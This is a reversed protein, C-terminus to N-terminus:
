DVLVVQTPRIQRFLDTSPSAAKFCTSIGTVFVHKGVPDVGQGVPVSGLVKVGIHTSNDQMASGDDIYFYGTTSYTVVGFTKVLLGINNLESSYWESTNKVGKQGVGTVADYQFDGGGLTRNAMFIPDVSGTGDQGVYTAIICRELGGTTQPKGVILARAGVAMGHSTKSVIIGSSRDEAEAYFASTFLYTVIGKTFVTTTNSAAKANGFGTEALCGNAASFESTNGSPDTATAAIFDGPTTLPLNATFSANGSGNTTVSQSGLYTQGEGYGSPDKAPSSFFEITYATDNAGNLMGAVATQGGYIYAATLVPYNQLNNPGSVTGTHNATVGYSDETGGLLDIGLRANSHISNGSIKNGTTATSWVAVGSTGNGSIINGAGIETGGVINNAAGGGIGVGYDLNPIAASGDAATGIHNGQVTNGTTGADSIEVGSATNGSIINAAGATTGGITNGSAGGYIFVGGANAVAATGTANTGIYNGQVLNTTSSLLCVGNGTNGSIINAAGATTGGITNAAGNCIIVGELVNPIAAAGTANTGIYNGQVLNNSADNLEMGRGGNGSIINRAAAVTGGITNGSAGNLIAVGNSANAVAATGTANTGIYNGQVLNNTSNYLCVGSWTNGSIINAAGATTGGVTNGSAGCCILAGECSNPIAAAGSANTGIYNGQVLNNTTGADSLLVGRDSNGSIINGAGTATGGITNGSAGSRILVGGVGNAVAVTGNANTGIYNGQVANNETGADNLAVGRDANGSITNGAGATTGGITNGSAGAYIVVGQCRNPIASAGAMNTGIYNGQVLNNTTGSNGLVVGNYTNGSITNAAGATTGGITNGSAGNGINVGNGGNAIAATGNANTGIRNGQVLNNTTGSHWMGVGNGTNGSIINAAGSTTGGITNGSAGGAVSVGDGGNAVAVTGNADTGIYNGQVLNNTTGSNHLAVGCVTNGSIINAAGATTGGVTNGSAGNAVAVGIGGNAVAVTGNANTGVYNGQVLNNTTGPDYLAVGHNTNGSIINAAGATTGGVSNGYAGDGIQVGDGSNPLASTGAMNTGIYNGQVVNNATGSNGLWVGNGTNGSITNAAGPATGGITNNSSGNSMSVGNGANPIASTGAANTGIRNGQVTNGTADGLMGVGNGTNGSIINRAGATTGGITNGSAGNGIGVGTAANAVAATGNANTGIYNGQVLNNTTGADGLWVGCSTNGSITNAAGATTGGITNGSAGSAVAVGIGGNAVAATGNANTGIYNGQVTNGTADGWMGVGNYTNGSIINAAGATTGGVTNGSAGNGVSVGDYGNPIAATGTANMGIRNGQVLNNTTWADYLAVGHGTNGSIINAAGATTGGITNGSAGNCILVGDSGNSIASTGNANTGIRNGQVFNNTTGADSLAVGHGTNGSIVNAAGATTGGITNGSAGSRIIVGDGGNAVAITGAAGLGIYNGKIYNGSGECAVGNYVNGSIINMAAPDTGGITNGHAGRLIGIGDAGNAAGATGSADTGVYCGIISNGHADWDWIVIGTGPWSNVVLNKVACDSSVIFFGNTGSGSLSGNVVIEPGATNTDGTFVTQTSGDIVTGNATINPLASTPKITFVGDTYGSDTTPINFIIHTDPNANASEMAHRLSGDGDDTTTTVVYDAAWVMSPIMALLCAAVFLSKSRM